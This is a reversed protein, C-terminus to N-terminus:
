FKNFNCKLNKFFKFLFLIVFSLLLFMNSMSIEANVFTTRNYYDPRNCNISEEAAFEAILIKM